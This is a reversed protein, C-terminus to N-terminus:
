ATQEGCYAGSPLKIGNFQVEFAEIHEVQSLLIKGLKNQIETWINFSM